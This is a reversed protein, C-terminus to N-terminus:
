KIKEMPRLVPPNEVAKVPPQSPKLPRKAPPSPHQGESILSRLRTSELLRDHLLEHTVPEPSGYISDPAHLFLLYRRRKFDLSDRTIRQLSDLRRANSVSDAKRQVTYREEVAKQEALNMAELRKEVAIYLDNLIYPRTSYFEVSRRFAISDIGYRDFVAAYYANRYARASDIPMSTLQGDVLHVDLLVDPMKKQPIIGDPIKEGCSICLVLITIGTLLRQM